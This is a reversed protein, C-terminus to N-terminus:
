ADFGTPAEPVDVRWVKQPGSATNVFGWDRVQINDPMRDVVQQTLFIGSDGNTGQLQFALNVADGWLDYAIHSQGVLGSTVTGTDIGARISLKTGHKGGYRNAIRELDMAFEVMRRANDVRPITLGCSALYGARTTRVREVGHRDAVDDFARIIENLKALAEESHMGRGFAEFGVIDAFLVSVEQHDLVITAAGEKYKKVLPEPMLSLLLRDNEAQQEALLTAKTQLSRSMDNFAAGVDALEDSTGADVQVGTEGAAIRRAADRLRRLPRVIVGAIVLSLLSVLLVIIASSLVLNRTFDDVPAFAESSDLEAVIVWDLGDLQLPAYAAITETGLYGGALTTGSQGEAAGQVADTHVPQLLLTNGTEVARHAAEPPTGAKVALQEYLAPNEILDRSTSRMLNDEAGVIYTEGTKGLGGEEWKGDGTMVANISAVPMEVALAGVITGDVAVPTVAWGAPVGLSPPYPAFDTFEVTGAVNGTLAKAYAAALNTRQLPGTDLDAGLDIGKYASYVVHGKTDLLLVDEYHFLETMRRFYDHYLEHAKSWDSGDGADNTAIAEDFTSFPVTYRLQLYGQAPDTPVLTSADISTGTAAELQARFTGTYYSELAARDESSLGTDELAAFGASFAVVAERVSDGRASLLLTSEISDFLSVMESARSDRVEILRNFAAERLSDRGNVYGILGVVVSSTTSVLLLMILLLSRISLGGKASASPLLLVNPAPPPTPGVTSM